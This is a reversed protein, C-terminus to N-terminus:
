TPKKATQQSQVASSATCVCEPIADGVPMLRFAGVTRKMTDSRFTLACIEEIGGGSDGNGRCCGPLDPLAIRMILRPGKYKPM